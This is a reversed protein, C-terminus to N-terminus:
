LRGSGITEGSATVPATVEKRTALTLVAAIALMAVSQQEATWGLGFAIGAAIATKFVVVIAAVWTGDHLAAAGIFGFIAVAVATILGQQEISVHIFFASVFQILAAAAATWALPDRGLIKM